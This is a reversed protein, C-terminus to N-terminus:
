NDRKEFNENKKDKIRKFILYAILVIVASYFLIPYIIFM